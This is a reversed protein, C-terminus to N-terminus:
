TAEQSEAEEPAAAPRTREVPKDEFREARGRILVLYLVFSVIV